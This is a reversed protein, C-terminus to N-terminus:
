DNYIYEKTQNKLNFIVYREKKKDLLFTLGNAYAKAGEYTKFSTTTGYIYEYNNSILKEKYVEYYYKEPM